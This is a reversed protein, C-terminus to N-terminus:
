WHGPWVIYRLFWDIAAVIFRTQERKSVPNRRISLGMSTGDWFSCLTIKFILVGAMQRTNTSYIVYRQRKSPENRDGM